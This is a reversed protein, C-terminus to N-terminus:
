INPHEALRRLATAHMLSATLAKLNKDDPMM